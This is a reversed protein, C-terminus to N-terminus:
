QIHHNRKKEPRPTAETRRKYIWLWDGSNIWRTAAEIYDNYTLRPRGIALKGIPKKEMLSCAKLKEGLVIEYLCPWVM